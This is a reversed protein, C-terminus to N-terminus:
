KVKKVGTIVEALPSGNRLAKVHKVIQATALQMM